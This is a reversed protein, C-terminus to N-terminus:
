EWNGKIIMIEECILKLAAPLSFDDGMWPPLKKGPNNELFDKVNRQHLKEQEKEHVSFTKVLSKLTM